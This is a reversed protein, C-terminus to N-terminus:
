AVPEKLYLIFINKVYIKSNRQWSTFLLVGITLCFILTTYDIYKYYISCVVIAIIVIVQACCLNRGFVSKFYYTDLSCINVSQKAQMLLINAKENSDINQNTSGLRCLLSNLNSIKYRKSKDKLIIRSPRELINMSYLWYEMQSSIYNILYGIVFSVFPIFFLAASTLVGDPIGKLFRIYVQIDSSNSFPILIFLSWVCLLYLGPVLWIIIENYRFEM